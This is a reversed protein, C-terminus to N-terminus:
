IQENKTLECAERMVGCIEAAHQQWFQDEQSETWLWGRRNYALRYQKVAIDRM